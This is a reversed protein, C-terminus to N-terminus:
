VGEIDSDEERGDKAKRAEEQIADIKKQIEVLEERLEKISEVAKKVTLNSDLEGSRGEDILDFVCQGIDAFNRDIKRKAALEDLKLKGIKTYEEIKEMSLSAGDKLGKRIKDWVSSDM